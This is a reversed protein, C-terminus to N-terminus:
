DWSYLHTVDSVNVYLGTNSTSEKNNGLPSASSYKKAWHGSNSAGVSLFILCYLFPLPVTDITVFGSSLIYRIENKLPSRGHLLNIRLLFPPSGYRNDRLQRRNLFTIRCIKVEADTVISVTGGEKGKGNLKRETLAELEPWQALCYEEVEGMPLWLSLVEFLAAIYPFKLSTARTYESHDYQLM